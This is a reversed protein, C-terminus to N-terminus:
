HKLVKWEQYKSPGFFAFTLFQGFIGQFIFLWKRGRKTEDDMTGNRMFSNTHKTGQQRGNQTHKQPGYSTTADDRHRQKKGDDNEM